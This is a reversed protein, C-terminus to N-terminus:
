HKAEMRCLRQGCIVCDSMIPKWNKRALKMATRYAQETAWHVDKQLTVGNAILMDATAAFEDCLTDNSHHPCDTCDAVTGPCRVGSHLLEILKERMTQVEKSLVSALEFLLLKEAM